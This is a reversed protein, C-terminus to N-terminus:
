HFQESSERRLANIVDRLGMLYGYHWYLRERSDKNLHAQEAQVDIGQERLWSELQIIRRRIADEGSDRASLPQRTLDTTV